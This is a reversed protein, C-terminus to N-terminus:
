NCFYYGLRPIWARRRLGLSQGVCQALNEGLVRLQSRSASHGLRQQRRHHVFQLLGDVVVDENGDVRDLRGGDDSLKELTLKPRGELQELVHEGPPLDDAVGLQLVDAHAGQQAPVQQGGEAGAVGHVGELFASIYSAKNTM